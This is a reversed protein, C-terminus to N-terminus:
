SFMVGFYGVIYMIVEVTIKCVDQAHVGDRLRVEIKQLKDTCEAVNSCSFSPRNTGTNRITALEKEVVELDM